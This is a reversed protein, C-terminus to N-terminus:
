YLCGSLCPHNVGVWWEQCEGCSGGGARGDLGEVQCGADWRGGGGPSLALWRGRCVKLCHGIEVGQGSSGGRGGLLSMERGHGAGLDCRGPVGLM